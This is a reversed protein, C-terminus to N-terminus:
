RGEETKTAGAYQNILADADSCSLHPITVTYLSPAPSEGELAAWTKSGIIGDVTLGNDKQFARVAKDTANGFDGDVGWKGLDYGKQLLEAQALAVYEGKDGKRLTPRYDPDPKPPEPPTDTIGKPIAWHTWKKNRTKFYQVGSSCELTEGKYGFGTHQMKGDKHVFLCVLVDDPITDITGKTLWNDSNWQSTAGEGVLDIGFQKLCWDTYGRCDFIRTNQGDPFWQCGNCNSKKGNLVQCKSVITPHDDRARRKRNAPTCLEGWAGFVYGWGLCDMATNWVADSLPIGAAKWAEIDQAVQDATKM